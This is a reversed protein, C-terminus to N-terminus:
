QDSQHNNSLPHPFEGDGSGSLCDGKGITAIIASALSKVDSSVLEEKAIAKRYM